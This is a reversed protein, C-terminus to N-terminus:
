RIGERNLFRHYQNAYKQHQRNTKSFNHYGSYDPKACFFLYDHKEYNLVADISSKEPLCIPGPPIGKYKYTNFPSDIEKHRNLVRRLTFDGVAFVLTPDAQFLMDKHMRNIYVGAVRPKEDNKKTEAEVISALNGVQQPTLGISKAKEQREETWFADYQKKMRKAFTEPSTNWFFEYTDPQFMLAFSYQNFGYTEANESNQFFALFENEDPELKGALLPALDELKRINNFTLKVPKQKGSRLMNILANGTMKNRLEYRGPKIKERYQKKDALWDFGNESILFHRLSDKVQAYDSGTPIYLIVTDSSLNVMPKYIYRYYKYAFGGGILLLVLFITFVILIKRKM